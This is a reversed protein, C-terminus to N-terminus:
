ILTGGRHRGEFSHFTEQEAEEHGIEYGIRLLVASSRGESAFGHSAQGQM